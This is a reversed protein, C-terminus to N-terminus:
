AEIDITVGNESACVFNGNGGSATGAYVTCRRVEADDNVYTCNQSVPGTCTAAHSAVPVALAACAAALSVFRRIM